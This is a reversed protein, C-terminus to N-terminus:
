IKPMRTAAKLLWTRSEYLSGRAYFCFQRQEKYFYRGYGESINAAISDISRVLQYGITKREFVDWMEVLSFTKDGVLMGLKYIELDSLDMRAM